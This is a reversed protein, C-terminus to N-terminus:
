KSGEEEWIAGCLGCTFVTWYVDDSPAYNGTSSDHKKTVCDEPHSCQEQIRKIKEEREQIEKRLNKIM